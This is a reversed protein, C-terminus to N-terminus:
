GGTPSDVPSKRGRIEAFGARAEAVFSTVLEPLRDGRPGKVGTHADVGAPQVSRIATRVNDPNLGGALIVPKPSAMVIRHSVDWDHTKGTAGSAGTAPDYTDTIFADVFPGSSTALHHLEPENDGRVILSKVIVLNPALKRLQVLEELSVDGHLQVWRVGLQHCLRVIDEARHLYTILVARVSRDLSRIIEAAAEETIEQHHVDLRLPFGIADVGAHVLMRAEAQDEVGAIQVFNEVAKQLM